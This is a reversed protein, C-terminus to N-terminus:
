DTTFNQLPLASAARRLNHRANTGTMMTPRDDIRDYREEQTVVLHIFEERRM